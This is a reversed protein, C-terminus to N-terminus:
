LFTSTHQAPAMKCPRVKASRENAVAPNSKPHTHSVAVLGGKLLFIRSCLDVFNFVVGSSSRTQIRKSPDGLILPRMRRAEKTLAHSFATREVVNQVADWPGGTLKAHDRLM